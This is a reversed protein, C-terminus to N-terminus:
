EALEDPVHLSVLNGSGPGVEFWREADLDLVALTAPRFQPVRSGGTLELVLHHVGPNHGVILVVSADDDVERLHELITDAEAGYLGPEYAVDVAAGASSGLELADLTQRTRLASSCLVLDPELRQVVPGLTAAAQRGSASLPRDTDDGGPPADRAQGHRLVLLRM